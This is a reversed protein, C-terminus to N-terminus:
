DLPQGYVATLTHKVAAYYDIFENLGNVPRQLFVYRGRVLMGERFDYGEVVDHDALSRTFVLAGRDEREPTGPVQHRISQPSKGWHSDLTQLFALMQRSVEAQMAAPDVDDFPIEFTPPSLPADATVSLPTLSLLTGCFLAMCGRMTRVM